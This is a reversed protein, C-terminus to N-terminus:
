PVDARAVRRNVERAVAWFFLTPSLRKLWWIWRGKAPLVVYLRRAHMAAVAADAVADATLRSQLFESRAMRQDHETSFRASDLLSTPFFSPCLVTVGVGHPRLEAHLTESLSVLAAKTLNYAAMGPFSGIAALSATNILYGGRPNRKLWDVFTHCGHIANWININVIWHWDELACQGVEGSVAVGANNILLDLQPWDTELRKRLSSWAAADTVDLREVRGEGGADRVLQLTEAAGVEDIDCIAIEWGDRALRRCLARGLGSAGGTVIATRRPPMSLILRSPTPPALASGHGRRRNITSCIADHIAPVPFFRLIARDVESCPVAHWAM